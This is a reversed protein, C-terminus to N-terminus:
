LSRSYMSVAIKALRKPRRGTTTISCGSSTSRMISALRLKPAAGYMPIRALNALRLVPRHPLETPSLALNPSAM